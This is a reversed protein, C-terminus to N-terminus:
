GCWSDYCLLNLRKRVMRHGSSGNSATQLLTSHGCPMWQKTERQSSVVPTQAVLKSIFSPCPLRSPVVNKNVFVAKAQLMVITPNSNRSMMTLPQQVAANHMVM